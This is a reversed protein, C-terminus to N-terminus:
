FFDVCAPGFCVRTLHGARADSLLPAFPRMRAAPCVLTPSDDSELTRSVQTQKPQFTLIFVFSIKAETM